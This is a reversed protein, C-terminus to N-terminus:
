KFAADVKEQNISFLTDPSFMEEGWTNERIKALNKNTLKVLTQKHKISGVLALSV